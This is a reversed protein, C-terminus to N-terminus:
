QNLQQFVKDSVDGETQNNGKKLHAAPHVAHRINFLHSKGPHFCNTHLSM